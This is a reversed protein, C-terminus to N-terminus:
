CPIGSRAAALAAGRTLAQQYTEELTFVVFRM